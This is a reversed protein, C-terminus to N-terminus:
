AHTKEQGGRIRGLWRCWISLVLLMYLRQSHDRGRWPNLSKEGAADHERLMQQVFAMNLEVGAEALGPFPDASRLHDHLLQRMGGYDTRFWEGIPIAFGRKPRDVIDSPFHRKAVRRLLGKRTTHSCVTGRREDRLTALDLSFALSCLNPDLMPCRVEIPCAMSASDVKRLLDGPLYHTLDYRRAAKINNTRDNWVCQSAISPALKRLDPHQFIALLSRYSIKSSATILRAAKDWAGRADRRPFMPAMFGSVFRSLFALPVLDGAVMQREYGLFLEDGGDGSLAVGAFDSAAKSVWHTPLLSSDGFPLGISEILHVLDKAPNAPPNVEHHDSGIHEAVHRAIASEDYRDDPMRVCLTTLRGGGKSLARQAYLALLSSDLGGSLYCVIPVDADLRREVASALASEVADAAADHTTHTGRKPKFPQPKREPAPAQQSRLTGSTGGPLVRWGGPPVQEIGSIPTETPHQGIAIWEVIANANPAPMRPGHCATEYVGAASSGFIVGRQDNAYYLPKEGFRDRSTLLIGSARCWVGFAHMSSLQAPLTHEWARFGHALVETDSHDTEFVYGQGELEARLERHNYVCGNFVVAVLPKDPEIECAVIPTEGPQYTLDPRLRQGDHVMPQHGGQHDIISLRRHALAVDVVVGDERVARDRFRGQGDPGRHKISDDLIDLLQEPIAELHPPPPGDNPDHIKIVGAIGCM